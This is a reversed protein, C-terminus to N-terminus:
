PESSAARGHLNRGLESLGRAPRRLEAALPAARLEGRPRPAALEALTKRARAALESGGRRAATRCRGAPQGLSSPGRSWAWAALESSSRECCHQPTRGAAQAFEALKMFLQGAVRRFLNAVHQISHLLVGLQLCLCSSWMAKQLDMSAGSRGPYFSRTWFRGRGRHSRRMRHILGRHTRKSAEIRGILGIIVM